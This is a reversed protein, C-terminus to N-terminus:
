NNQRFVYEYYNVPVPDCNNPMWTETLVLYDSRHILTDTEIDMSDASLSQSNFDTVITQGANNIDDCFKVAKKTITQLAHGRLRVYENHVDQTTQSDNADRGHKFIFTADKDTINRVRSM